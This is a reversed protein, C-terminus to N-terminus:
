FVIFTIWLELEQGSFQEMEAFQKSYKEIQEDTISIFNGDRGDGCIIDDEYRRNPEIGNPKSEDNLVTIGM